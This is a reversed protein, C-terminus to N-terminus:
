TAPRGRWENTSRTHRRGNRASVPTFGSGGTERSETRASLARGIPAFGHSVNQQVGRQPARIRDRRRELRRLDLRTRHALGFLQGTYVITGDHDEQIPLSP